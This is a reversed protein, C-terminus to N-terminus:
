GRGSERAVRRAWGAYAAPVMLIGAQETVDQHGDARQRPGLSM